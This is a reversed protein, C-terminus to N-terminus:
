HSIYPFIHAQMKSKWREFSPILQQNLTLSKKDAAKAQVWEEFVVIVDHFDTLLEQSYFPDDLVDVIHTHSRHMKEFAMITDRFVIKPRQDNMNAGDLYQFAESVGTLVQMYEYLMEQEEVTRQRM